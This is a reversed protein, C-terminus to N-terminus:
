LMRSVRLRVGLRKRSGAPRASAVKTNSQNLDTHQVVDQHGERLTRNIVQDKTSPGRGLNQRVSSMFSANTTSARTSVIRNVTEFSRDNLDKNAVMISASRSPESIEVDSDIPQKKEFWSRIDTKSRKANHKRFNTEDKNYDNVSKVRERKKLEAEALVRCCQFGLNEFKTGNHNANSGIGSLNTIKGYSKRGLITGIESAIKENFVIESEMVWRKMEEGKLFPSVDQVNDSNQMDAFMGTVSKFSSLYLLAQARTAGVYLLRREEDLDDSRSHPIINECLCPLFVVPWELGKAAHLTSITVKQSEGEKQEENVLAIQTLFNQLLVITSIKYDLEYFICSINDSQQVLEMVNEWKEEVTEKNKRVLYEYYKIESLIGLLLDSLTASHGNSLYRNELKSISCLFSKLSKLFSKDNRQSLLINENKVENLTQWFTLGRRESEFIIRDIKTKGINRPPVNIVRILSTSDKNALVRLYAILDRIEERDFFKNVGVMRYPVGLESLAHELSRTLSSSRVLIAIDNYFILEPCSGVIRKIERAIWYSEKNNTEFLRYHPKLSSIHNSKLGKKPRSKDQSIISLALELIPKASRYNRELHLVQTGEFDESMQNLNRIEASRFGYISQDPDGVITIDSNQLALLKVLFYQIKSTDQFEDILIHKINRVCDPQKQLLLIFNLLLDDFDALNNKWLSTQYLRYLEVSQHSQLEKPPEELGNILSLQDMGPKVLLGNSKLKTIRNLANQPTLEQGRIGSAIPNKAKKLSDLLRKMIAQTDNRDAILWNSSLGIHKGYKVLYKYAISHFTGSILKSAESNGLIAEIRLKLENAAKNTFTAIILDEAAIHNKQLLYAVRATLVRTKGSGPGALIQTYKHPSQVSIRQEENLFKLYSSKTEM